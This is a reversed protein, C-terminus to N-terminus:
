PECNLGPIIQAPALNEPYETELTTWVYCLGKNVIPRDTPLLKMTLQEAQDWKGIRALSDIFIYYETDNLPYYGLDTAESYLNLVNQYNANQHELEAKEFYYCWGHDLEKGLVNTPPHNKINKDEFILNLDTLNAGAVTDTARATDINKPDVTYDVVFDPANMRSDLVRLCSDTSYYIFISKSTNGEFSFTRFDSNIQRNADLSPILEKQGSDLIIFQYKIKRDIIKDAYTWNLFATISNGSWYDDDPLQYAIVTTDEQLNPVRWNFQWFFREQTSWINKYQNAISIQYGLAFTILLSIILKTKVSNRKTTELIWVLILCSGFIYALLFRDFPFRFDVKLGASWFPIISFILSVLAVWPAQKRWISLESGTQDDNTDVKRLWGFLIIFVIIMIGPIVYAMIGSAPFNDLNFSTSWSNVVSDVIAKYDQKIFDTVLNGFGGAILDKLALSHNVSNFFFSRWVIFSLIIVFYPLWYVVTKSLREILKTNETKFEFFLISLRILELGLFFESAPVVYAMIAISLLYNLWFRKRTRIAKLMLTVSFFFGALCFFHFSYSAAIWQQTFGPFVAALLAVELNPRKAGPWITNLMQWLAIVSLWHTFVGFLQWIIPKEANGLIFNAVIYFYGELPRDLSFFKILDLSGFTHKFWILYWDDLYFGILPTLIGYSIICVFLLIVPTFEYSFIRNITKHLM